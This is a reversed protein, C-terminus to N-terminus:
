TKKANKRIKKQEEAEINNNVEQLLAELEAVNMASISPSPPTEDSELHGLMKCQSEKARLAIAYSKKELAMQFVSELDKLIKDRSMICKQTKM